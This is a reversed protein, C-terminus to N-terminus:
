SLMNIPRIFFRPPTNKNTGILVQTEESRTHVFSPVVNNAPMDIGYSIANDRYNLLSIEDNKQEVAASISDPSIVPVHVNATDPRKMSSIQKNGTRNNKAQIKEFAAIVVPETKKVPQSLSIKRVIDFSFLLLTSVALLTCAIKQLYMKKRGRSFTMMSIRRSTISGFFNHAIPIRTGMSRFLLLKAFVAKDCDKTISSDALFEHVVKLEKKIVYFFPNIWFLCSMIEAFVIDISHKQRIHVAEHNVIQQHSLSDLEISNNWFLWKYFSFPADKENTNVVLIDDIKEITYTKLLRAIRMFVFVMRLVLLLVVLGYVLWLWQFPNNQLLTTKVPEVSASNSSFNNTSIFNSISQSARTIQSAGNLGIPIHLFPVVVSFVLVSLLYFRNFFHFQKNRLFLFYYGSLLGSVLIMEILFGKM